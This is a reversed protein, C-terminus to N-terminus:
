TKYSLSRLKRPTPVENEEDEVAMMIIQLEARRRTGDTTANRSFSTIRMMCRADLIDGVEPDETLGLKDLEDDGLSVGLGYPYMPQGGDPMCVAGSVADKARKAASIAMDVMKGFSM